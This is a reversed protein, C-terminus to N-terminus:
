RAASGALNSRSKLDQRGADTYLKLRVPYVGVLTALLLVGGNRDQIDSAHVVADM